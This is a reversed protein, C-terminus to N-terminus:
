DNDEDENEFTKGCRSCSGRGDCDLNFRCHKGYRCGRRIDNARHEAEEYAEAWHDM